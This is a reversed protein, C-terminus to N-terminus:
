KGKGGRGDELADGQRDPPPEVSAEPVAPPLELGRSNRANIVINYINQASQGQQGPDPLTDLGQLRLALKVHERREAHDPINEPKGNEDVGRGQKTADLGERIRGMLLGHTIGALEMQERLYQQVAPLRYTISVLAPSCKMEHAITKFNDATPIRRLIGRQKGSLHIVNGDPSMLVRPIKKVRTRKDTINNPTNRQKEPTTGPLPTAPGPSIDPNTNDIHPIHPTNPIDPHNDQMIIKSSLM